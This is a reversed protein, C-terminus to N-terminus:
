YAAAVAHTILRLLFQLTPNDHHEFSLHRAFVKLVMLLNDANSGGYIYPDGEGMRANKTIYKDSAVNALFFVTKHNWYWGM